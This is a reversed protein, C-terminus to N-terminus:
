GRSFGLTPTRMRLNACPSVSATTSPTRCVQRSGQGRWGFEVFFHRFTICVRYKTYEALEEWRGFCGGARSSTGGCFHVFGNINYHFSIVPSPVRRSCGVVWRSVDDGIIARMGYTFVVSSSFFVLFLEM